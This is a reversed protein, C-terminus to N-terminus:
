KVLFFAGNKLLIKQNGKPKRTIIFINQGNKKKRAKFPIDALAYRMYLKYYEDGMGGQFTWAGSQIIPRVDRVFDQVISIPNVYPYKKETDTYISWHDLMSRGDMLVVSFLIAIFFAKFLSQKFLFKIAIGLLCSLLVLVITFPYGGFSRPSIFNVIKPSFMETNNMLIDLEAGISSKKLRSSKIFEKPISTALYDIRGDWGDIQRVDYYHKGDLATLYIAKAKGKKAVGFTAPMKGYRIDLDLELIQNNADFNQFLVNTINQGITTVVALLVFIFLPIYRKFM